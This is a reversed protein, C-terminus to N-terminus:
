SRSRSKSKTRSRRRRNYSRSRSRSRSGYDKRSGRKEEPCDRAWHGTRHCRACEDAGIRSERRGYSGRSSGGFEDPKRPTGKSWEVIIKSGCVTRGNEYRIADAADRRDEFDVFGYITKGSEPGNNYKIECRTIKGYTEFIEELDRTRTNKNLRGIFLYGGDSRRSM